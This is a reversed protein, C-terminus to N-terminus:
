TFKFRTPVEGGCSAAYDEALHPAAEKHPYIFKGVFYKETEKFVTYYSPDHKLLGNEKLFKVVYYRPKMRGELSYCLIVPRQAIYAPELGVESMLFESSHQLSESSKALLFPAKPLAIGVEADSWGLTKKLHDVKAAIQKEDRFAVASLAHRFMGSGRPVGLAETLAVMRQVRELDTTVMRPISSCLKAMDCDGFGCQRLFAVNLEVKSKYALLATNFNIARLLRESSGFLRLYYQLKPVISRSRFNNPSQLLLRAIESHSLGLGSLGAVIPSLGKDVGACLFKPDRAIVAAVDAGSLGLGALFALVADPNAASRLHALKPSAKLAQPRTLGCTGVLYEEVAFGTTPSIGSLLRRPSSLICSRAHLQPRAAASIPRHLPSTTAASPTSLMQILVRGRRRLM